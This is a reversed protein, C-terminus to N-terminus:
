LGFTDTFKTSAKRMQDMNAKAYFNLTTSVDAHGLLHQVSKIDGGDALILSAATHRLAHLYYRPLGNEVMFKRVKHTVSTPECPCFIDRKGHFIFADQLDKGPFKLQQQERYEQLVKTTKDSLPISRNSGSTRPSGIVVGSGTARTVNRKIHLQKSDFDIDPWKLGVLEGRRIGTTIFLIIMSRVEDSTSPLARLLIRRM